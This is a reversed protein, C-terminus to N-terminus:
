VTELSQRVPRKSSQYVMGLGAEAYAAALSGFRRCYTSYGGLRGDGCESRKPLRGNLVYFDRLSEILLEDTKLTLNPSMGAAVLAKNWSGFRQRAIGLLVDGAEDCTPTHGLEAALAQIKLITQPPCRNHENRLETQPRGRAISKARSRSARSLASGLARADATLPRPIGRSRFKEQIAPALLSTTIRLGHELRYDRCSGHSQAVHLGLCGFWKGCAHCRITENERDYEIAGEISKGSPVFPAKEEWRYVQGRIIVHSAHKM